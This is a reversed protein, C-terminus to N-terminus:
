SFGHTYVNLLLCRPREQLSCARRSTCSRSKACTGCVDLAGDRKSFSPLCLSSCHGDDCAYIKSCEANAYSKKVAFLAAEARGNGFVREVALAFVGVVGRLRVLVLHVRQYPGRALGNRIGSNVTVCDFRHRKVRGPGTDDRHAFIKPREIVVIEPAVMAGLFFCLLNGLQGM